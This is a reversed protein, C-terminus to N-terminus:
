EFFEFVINRVDFVEATISSIKADVSTMEPQELKLLVALPAMMPPLPPAATPATMPLVSPLVAAPAM